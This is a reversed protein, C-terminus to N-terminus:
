QKPADHKDWWVKADIKDEGGPLRDIAEQMNDGNISKEKTTPYSVRTPMFGNTVGASLDPTTRQDIVPYGTRRITCWSEFANPVSTIWMQTSIKRFNDDRDAGLTAENENDLYLDISGSDINWQEMALRIATQYITNADGTAGDIEFLAVESRLLWIQGATILYIPQDKAFFELM